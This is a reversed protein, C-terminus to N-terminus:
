ITESCIKIYYVHNGPSSQISLHFVVTYHKVEAPPSWVSVSSILSGAARSFHCFHITIFSYAYAFVFNITCQESNLFVIGVSNIRPILFM